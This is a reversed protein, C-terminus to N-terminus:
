IVAKALQMKNRNFLWADMSFTMPGTLLIVLSSVMLSCPFAAGGMFFNKPGVLVTAVLMNIVLAFAAPRTFLGIILLFGGILETYCSIYAWPAAINMNAKFIDI